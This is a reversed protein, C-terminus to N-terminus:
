VVDYTYSLADYNFRIFKKPNKIVTKGDYLKHITAERKREKVKEEDILRGSMNISRQEQISSCKLYPDNNNTENIRLYEEYSIKTVERICDKHHHKCRPISRAIRAAEKGSEAIVGFTILVYCSRGVHGCKCKVAYYYKSM